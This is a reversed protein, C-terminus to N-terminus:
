RENKIVSIRGTPELVAKAVDRLEDVGERRLAMGLELQSIRERDLVGDNVKGNEILVQPRGELFTELTRSKFVARDVVVTILLLMAAALVGATISTDQKTLSPSVTESLLLMTLLDMPSLQGLEKKGTLRLLAFLALYVIVVRVPIQLLSVDTPTFM